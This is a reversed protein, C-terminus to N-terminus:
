QDARERAAAARKQEALERAAQKPDLPPPPPPPPAPAPPLGLMERSLGLSGLTTGGAEKAFSASPLLVSTINAGNVLMRRSLTQEPLHMKARGTRAASGAPVVPSVYWACARDSLSSLLVLASLRM